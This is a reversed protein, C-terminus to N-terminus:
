NVETDYITYKSLDIEISNKSEKEIFTALHLRDIELSLHKGDSTIIKITNPSLKGLRPSENIMKLRSALIKIAEKLIDSLRSYETTTKANTDVKVIESITGIRKDISSFINYKISSKIEDKLSEYKIKRIKEKEILKVRGLSEADLKGEKIWRSIAQRTIGLVLAAESITYYNDKIAM